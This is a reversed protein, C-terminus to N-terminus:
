RVPIGVGVGIGIGVSVGGNAPKDRLRMAVLHSVLVCAQRARPTANCGGLWAGLSARAGEGDFRVLEGSPLLALWASREGPLAATESGVFGLPVDDPGVLRGDPELLAVPQADTDFVRGGRDISLEHEGNIVVKGSPLLEITMDGRVWRAHPIQVIAGGQAWHAPPTAGCASLLSASVAVVLLSLARKM